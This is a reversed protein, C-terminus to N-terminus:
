WAQARFYDENTAYKHTGVDPKYYTKPVGTADM